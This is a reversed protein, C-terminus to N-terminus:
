PSLVFAGQNRPPVIPRASAEAGKLAVEQPAAGFLSMTQPLEPEPETEIDPNADPDAPEAASEEAIAQATAALALALHNEKRAESLLQALEDATANLTYTTPATDTAPALEKLLTTFELESFLARAASADVAQTRM